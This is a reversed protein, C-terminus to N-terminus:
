ACGTAPKSGEPDYIASWDGLYALSGRSKFVFPEAVERGRVAGNLKKVAYAAKQNAVQATAPLVQDQTMSADGIAIIDPLAKGDTDLAELRDNTILSSTKPDKKLETIAKVLPNPALGTSWVCM